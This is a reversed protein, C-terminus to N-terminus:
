CRDLMLWCWVCLILGAVLSTLNAPPTVRKDAAVGHDAHEGAPGTAMRTVESDDYRWWDGSGESRVHAVAACATSIARPTSYPMCLADAPQEACAARGSSFAHQATCLLHCAFSSIM